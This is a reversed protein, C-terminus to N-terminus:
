RAMLFGKATYKKTQCVTDYHTLSESLGLLLEAKTQIKTVKLAVHVFSNMSTSSYSATNRFTLGDVVLGTQIARNCSKASKSHAKILMDRKLPNSTFGSLHQFGKMPGLQKDIAKYAELHNASIVPPFKCVVSATTM